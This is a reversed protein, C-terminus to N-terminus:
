NYTTKWIRHKRKFMIGMSAIIRLCNGLITISELKSCKWALMVFPDETQALNDYSLPMADMFGDAIHVSKLTSGYNKGMFNIAAM